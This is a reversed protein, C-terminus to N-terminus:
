LMFCRIKVTKNYRIANYFHYHSDICVYLSEIFIPDLFLSNFFSWQGALSLLRKMRTKNLM